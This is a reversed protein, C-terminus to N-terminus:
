TRSSAFTAPGTIIRCCRADGTEFDARGAKRLQRSFREVFHEALLPIDEARERLAPLTIPFVNLRYYLDRRFRENSVDNMLDRNTAAIVRVDINTTHTSGLRDLQGEQLVRLLKPQLELPLDGVEDLFLTGRHALEFRGAQSVSAGTFAGRERGFLESEILTAPLASCNLRSSGITGGRAGAIFRARSSSKAPAPKASCCSPPRRRPSRNSESCSTAGRAARVSSGMREGTSPESSRAAAPLRCSRARADSM